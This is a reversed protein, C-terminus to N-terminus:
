DHMGVAYDSLVQLTKMSYQTTDGPATAFGGQGNEDVHCGYCAYKLSLMAKGDVNRVTAGDDNFFEYDAETNIAFLHSKVDGTYAGRQQGSKSSYPMHCSNCSAAANHKMTTKDAHCDSGCTQIVSDGSWITRKHPDHCDICSMQGNNYHDTTIYEDYQEHHKTFGSSAAISRDANRTHCDGCLDTVDKTGELRSTVVREIYQTDGDVAHQSGQGHCAECQIGGFAFYDMTEPADIDLHVKLWSSDPNSTEFGGTTHCKFCGYNYKKVDSPHYDNWGWDVGVGDGFFNHQNAGTGPVISEATGLVHGTIDVFRAKWGFGGIVGAINSWDSESAPLTLSNNVFSPYTPAAGDVINFKYPHGSDIFDAYIETHCDGCAASGVHALDPLEEEDKTDECSWMFMVPVVLLLTFLKQM